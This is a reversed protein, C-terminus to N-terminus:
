IKVKIVVKKVSRPVNKCLQPMHGDQPFLITFFGGGIAMELPQEAGIEVPKYFAIDDVSNYPKVENLQSIPLCRVIEEGTIAYQIDIYARHAEYGSENLPKSCYESVYAKVHPSIEYCGVEIDSAVQKLYSLGRFIDASLSFYTQINNLSDYIM